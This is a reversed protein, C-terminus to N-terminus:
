PSLCRSEDYSIGGPVEAADLARLDRPSGVPRTLWYFNSLWFNSVLLGFISYGM